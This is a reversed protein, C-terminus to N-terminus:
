PEITYVNDALAFCTNYFDAFAALISLDIVLGQNDNRLGQHDALALEM